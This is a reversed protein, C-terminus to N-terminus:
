STLLNPVRFATPSFIWEERKAELPKSATKPIGSKPQMVGIEVKLKVNCKEQMHTKDLNRSRILVNVIKFKPNM